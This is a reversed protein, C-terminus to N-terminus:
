QAPKSYRYLHVMVAFLMLVGGLNFMTINPFNNVAALAALANLFVQFGFIAVLIGVIWKSTLFTINAQPKKGRAIRGGSQAAKYRLFAYTGAFCLGAVVLMAGFIQVPDIYLAQTPTLAAENIYFGWYTTILIQGISAIGLSTFFPRDKWSFKKSKDVFPIVLFMLIFLTPILIGAIFKPMFTRLFAYLSTLYWEPLTYGVNATPTYQVGLSVPYMGGLILVAGSVASVVPLDFTLYRPFHVLMLIIMVVPLIFIHLAYFRLIFDPFGRGFIMHVLQPGLMPASYNLSVGISVALVARTNVILDYGTFAELVTITGFIVGTVWIIENRIKFRGSFYNYYMHALALFVMANSSFYHINRVVIGYPITNNILAVSQWAGSLTPTYFLLLLAGTVGLILFNIFTLMGLYPLPSVFRKPITFKYALWGTRDLREVLWDYLKKVLYRVGIREKTPKAQAQATAM